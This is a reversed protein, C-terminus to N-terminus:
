SRGRKARPIPHNVNLLFCLFPMIIVNNRKERISSQLKQELMKLYMYVTTRLLDCIRVFEGVNM